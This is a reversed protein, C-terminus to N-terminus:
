LFPYCIFCLLIVASIAAKANVAATIAPHPEASLPLSRSLIRESMASLLFRPPRVDQSPWEAKESGTRRGIGSLDLFLDIFNGLSLDPDIDLKDM